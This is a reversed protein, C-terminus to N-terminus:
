DPGCRGCENIAHTKSIGYSNIKMIRMACVKKLGIQPAESGVLSKAKKDLHTSISLSIYISYRLILTSKAEHLTSYSELPSGLTCM